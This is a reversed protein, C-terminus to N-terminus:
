DDAVAHHMSSPTWSFLNIRTEPSQRSLTCLQPAPQRTRGAVIMGRRSRTEGARAIRLHWCWISMAFHNGDTTVRIDMVHPRAPATGWDLEREQSTSFGISHTKSSAAPRWRCGVDGIATLPMTLMNDVLALGQKTTGRRQRATRMRQADSPFPLAVIACSRCCVGNNLNVRPIRSSPPGSLQTCTVHATMPGRPM